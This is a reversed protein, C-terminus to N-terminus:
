EQPSDGASAPIQARRRGAWVAGGGLALLAAASGLAWPTMDAGTHALSGHRDPTDPPTGHDKPAPPLTTEPTPPTSPPPTPTKTDQARVTVESDARATFSIPRSLTDYGSPAKTETLLYETGAEVAADLKLPKSKGDAETTGSAVKTGAVKKGTADVKVTSIDFGMEALAKGTEKDTKLVRMTAPIPDDALTVNVEQGPKATFPKPTADLQYHKPATTEKAWYRAGDKVSRGLKARATGDAGTTLETIKKGPRHKGSSDVEDADIEIVGHALPKGTTKDVKKLVLEGDRFPDVLTVPHATASQGATIVVDQDPILAHVSDGTSTEHLRYKGPRLGEFVLVGDANTKGEAVEKGTAPDLLQFGVGALHTGQPDRKHIQVGGTAPTVTVAASDRATTTDGALLMRQARADHPLLTKLQAGPLGAASATVTAKGAESPSFHWQARGDSGTTVRGHASGANVDVAVGPVKQGSLKATVDLTVTVKHGATAQQVEPRVHLEYPGAYRRAEALYRQALPRAGASVNSHSLRQKGRSGNLGYKGGALLEYTAADVAAAQEDSHTQGYRGIVYSAYAVNADPM